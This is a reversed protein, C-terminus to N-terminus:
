LPDPSNLRLPQISVIQDLNLILPSDYRWNWLLVQDKKLRIKRRAKLQDQIYKCSLDATVTGWTIFGPTDRKRYNVVFEGHRDALKDFVKREM